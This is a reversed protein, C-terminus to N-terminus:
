FVSEEFDALFSSRIAEARATLFANADRLRLAALADDSIFQSRLAVRGSETDAAREITEVLESQRYAEDRRCFVVNAFLRASYVKFNCDTQLAELPVVPQFNHPDYSSTVEGSAILEYDFISQVGKNTVYSVFGSTLAKGKLM